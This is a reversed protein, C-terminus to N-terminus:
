QAICLEVFDAYAEVFSGQTDPLGAAHMAERTLEAAHFHNWLGPAQYLLRLYLDIAADKSIGCQRALVNTIPPLM